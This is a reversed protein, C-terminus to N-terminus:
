CSDNVKTEQVIILHAQLNDNAVRRKLKPFQQLGVLVFLDAKGLVAFEQGKDFSFRYREFLVRTLLDDSLLTM